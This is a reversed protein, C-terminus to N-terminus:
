SVSSDEKHGAPQLAKGVRHTFILAKEEATLSEILVRDDDIIFAILENYFRTAGERVQICNMKGLLVEYLYYGPTTIAVGLYRCYDEWAKEETMFANILLVGHTDEHIVKLFRNILILVKMNFDKHKGMTHFVFRFTFMRFAERFRNNSQQAWWHASEYTHFEVGNANKIISQNKKEIADM